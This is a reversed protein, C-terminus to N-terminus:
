PMAQLVALTINEYPGRYGREYVVGVSASDIPVMVSYASPGAYVLSHIAWSAGNDASRKVTMHTRAAAEAPNSFFLTDNFNILGASCTPEVLAPAFQHPAWTSGGDSSVAYARCDCSKNLHATRANVMVRGDSLEVLQCEQLGSFPAAGGAEMYSAGNNDSTWIPLTMPMGGVYGTAGCVVLRGPHPSHKAHRGLVIGAGPGMLVGEWRGFDKRVSPGWTVGHDLSSTQWNVCHLPDTSNVWDVVIVGSDLVTAYPNRASFDPHEADKSPGHARPGVVLQLASWTRGGDTSRRATVDKPAQDGCSGIRSEALVVLAGDAARVATPVRFCAYTTGWSGRGGALFIDAQREILSGNGSGGAIEAWAEVTLTDAPLAMMALAVGLIWGLSAM